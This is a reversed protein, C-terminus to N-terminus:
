NIFVKTQLKVFSVLFVYEKQAYKLNLTSCVVCGRVPKKRGKYLRPEVELLNAKAVFEFVFSTLNVCFFAFIAFTLGAGLVGGADLALSFDAAVTFAVGTPFFSAAGALDDPAGITMLFATLIGELITSDVAIGVFVAAVFALFGEFNTGGFVTGGFLADLVVIAVAGAEFDVAFDNTVLFATEAVLPFDEVAIVPLAIDPPTVVAFADLDFASSKFASLFAGGDFPFDAAEPEGTFSKFFDGIL